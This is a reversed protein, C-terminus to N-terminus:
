LNLKLTIGLSLLANDQITQKNKRTLFAIAVAISIIGVAIAIISWLEEM